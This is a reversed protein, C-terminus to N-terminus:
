TDDHYCVNYQPPYNGIQALFQTKSKLVNSVEVNNFLSDIFMLIETFNM